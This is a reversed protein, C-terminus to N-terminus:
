RNSQHILYRVMTRLMDEKVEGIVEKWPTPTFELELLDSCRYHNIIEFFNLTATNERTNM